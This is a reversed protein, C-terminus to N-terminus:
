DKVCGCFVATITSIVIFFIGSIIISWVTYDLAFIGVFILGIGTLLGFISFIYGLVEFVSRKKCCQKCM